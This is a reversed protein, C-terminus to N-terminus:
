NNMNLVQTRSARPFGGASQGLEDGSVEATELRHLGLQAGGCHGHLAGAPAPEAKVLVGALELDSGTGVLVRQLGGGAEDGEEPDVHPLM